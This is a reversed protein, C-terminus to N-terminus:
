YHVGPAPQLVQRRKIVCQEIIELPFAQELDERFQAQWEAAGAALDRAMEKDIFGQDITPNMVRTAATWVLVPAHEKGYFEKHTEYLVGNRAYPSSLVLLKAGPVTAIAPPLATLIERDPNAGGAMWFAIEDALAAALTVG